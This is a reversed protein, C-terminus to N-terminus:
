PGVRFDVFRGAALHTALATAADFATAAQLLPAPAAGRCLDALFRWAAEDLRVIALEDALREVLLHVPNGQPDIASMAADDRELVAQRILDAPSDARLLRISPHPVLSLHDDEACSALRGLDLPQTEPAHLAKSVAWELAAVDALYPLAKSPQFSKLFEPFEEGFLELWSSRPPRAEVFVQAAAEFFAAGVLKEVAPFSLRLAKTLTVLFTNRYIDLRDPSVDPALLGVVSDTRAHVIHRLTASQIELLTSM